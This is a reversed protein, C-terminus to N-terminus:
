APNCFVVTLVIETFISIGFNVSANIEILFNHIDFTANTSIGEKVSKFQDHAKLVTSNNTQGAQLAPCVRPSAVSTM